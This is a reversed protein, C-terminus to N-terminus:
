SYDACVLSDCRTRCFGEATTDTITDSSTTDKIFEYNVTQCPVTPIHELIRDEHVREVFTVSEADHHHASLFDWEELAL